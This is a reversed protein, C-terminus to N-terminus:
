SEQEVFMIDRIKEKTLGNKTCKKKPNKTEKIKQEIFMIDRIKEKTLRFNFSFFYCINHVLIEKVFTRSWSIILPSIYLFFELKSQPNGARLPITFYPLPVKGYYPLATGARMCPLIHFIPRIHYFISPGPRMTLNKVFIALVYEQVKHEQTLNKVIARALKNIKECSFIFFIPKGM